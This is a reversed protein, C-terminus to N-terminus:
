LYVVVRFLFWEKPFACVRVFFAIAHLILECVICEMVM